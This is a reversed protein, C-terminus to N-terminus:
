LGLGPSFGFTRAVEVELAAKHTLRLKTLIVKKM